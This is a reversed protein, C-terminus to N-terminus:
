SLFLSRLSLIIIITGVALTAYKRNIKNLFYSAIPAAIIGGIILGLIIPWGKIAGFLLFTFGSAFAIAFEAANVSGITYVPHRGKGVLTSTVIPGWGGGGVSDMFGGFIALAGLNKTPKKKKITKLGKYIIMIALGIMYLNIYPAIAKSDIYNSLLYSGLVAGIVGPIMLYYVLKKNINKFKHNTMTSIGSAFMESIHVSASSVAPPVGYALLFTTSTAGYGMGLTGDVLQALVGIALYIWFTSDVSFDYSQNTYDSQLYKVIMVITCSLM